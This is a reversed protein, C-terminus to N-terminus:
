VRPECHELLSAVATLVPYEWPCPRYLYTCLDHGDIRDLSQQSNIVRQRNEIATECEQHLHHISDLPMVTRSQEHSSEVEDIATTLRADSNLLSTREAELADLATQRDHRCRDVAGLLSSRFEPTVPNESALWTALEPGFEEGWNEVISEAYLEEYHRTDMVTERYSTRIAELHTVDSSSDVCLATSSPQPTRTQTSAVTERFATFADIEAQIEERENEVIDLAEQIPSLRQRLQHDNDVICM